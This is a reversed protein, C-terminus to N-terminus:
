LIWSNLSFWFFTAFQEGRKFIWQWLVGNMLVGGNMTVYELSQTIKEIGRESNTCSEVNIWMYSDWSYCQVGQLYKCNNSSTSIWRSPMVSFVMYFVM